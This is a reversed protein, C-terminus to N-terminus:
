TILVPCVVSQAQRNVDLFVNVRQYHFFYLKTPGSEIDELVRDSLHFGISIARDLEKLTKSSLAHIWKEAAATKAVGYLSGGEALVFKKLRDYHDKEESNKM